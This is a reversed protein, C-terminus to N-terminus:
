LIQKEKINNKNFEKVAEKISLVNEEHKETLIPVIMLLGNIDEKLNLVNKAYINTSALESIEKINGNADKLYIEKWKKHKYSAVIDDERTSNLLLM